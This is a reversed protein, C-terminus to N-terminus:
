YPSRLIGRLRCLCTRKRLTRAEPAKKRTPMQSRPTTLAKDASQAPAIENPQEPTKAVNQASDESAADTAEEQAGKNNKNADEAPKSVGKNAQAQSPDASSEAKPEEASKETAPRDNALENGIEAVGQAPILSLVMSISVFVSFIRVFPRRQIRDNAEQRM